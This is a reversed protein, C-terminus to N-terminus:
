SLHWQKPVDPFQDTLEGITESGVMVSRSVTVRREHISREPNGMKSGPEIQFSGEIDYYGTSNWTILDM